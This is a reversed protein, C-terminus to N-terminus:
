KQKAALGYVLKPMEDERRPVITGKLLEDKLRLAIAEFEEFNVLITDPQRNPDDFIAPEIKRHIISKNHYDPFGRQHPPEKHEAQKNDLYDHIYASM